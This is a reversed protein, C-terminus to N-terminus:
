VQKKYSLVAWVNVVITFCGLMIFNHANDIMDSGKLYVSRMINIFYRPPNFYAIDQAWDPM